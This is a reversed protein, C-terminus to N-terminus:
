AASAEGRLYLLTVTSYWLALVGDIRTIRVTCEMQGQPDAIWRLSLDPVSCSAAGIRTAVDHDMSEGISLGLDSLEM